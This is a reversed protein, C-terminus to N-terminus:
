PDPRSGVASQDLLSQWNQVYAVALGSSSQRVIYRHGDGVMAFGVGRDDFTSRRWNEVTFLTRPTGSPSNGRMAVEQVKGTPTMFVVRKGDSTWAPWRGGELSLRAPLGGAIPAAYVESRGTEDSSFVVSKGDPSFHGEWVIGPRAIRNTVKGDLTMVELATDNRVLLRSGDRSWDLTPLCFTMTVFTMRAITRDTDRTLDHENIGCTGRYSLM